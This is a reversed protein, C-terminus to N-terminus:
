LFPWGDCLIWRSSSHRPAAKGLRLGPLSFIPPRHTDCQTHWHQFLSKSEAIKRLEGARRGSATDKLRDKLDPFHAYYPDDRRFKEELPRIGSDQMMSKVALEGCLGYLYGAVARCGPQAGAAEVLHLEAAAKLHRRAANVLDKKYAV